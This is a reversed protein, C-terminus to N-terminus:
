NSELGNASDARNPKLKTMESGLDTRQSEILTVLVM